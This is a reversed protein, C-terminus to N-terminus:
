ECQTSDVTDRGSGSKTTTSAEANERARKNLENMVEDFEWQLPWFGSEETSTARTIVRLAREVYKRFGKKYLCPNLSLHENICLKSSVVTLVLSTIGYHVGGLTEGLKVMKARLNDDVNPLERKIDELDM